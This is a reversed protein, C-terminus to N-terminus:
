RLRERLTVLRLQAIPDEALADIQAQVADRAESGYHRQIMAAAREGVSDRSALHVLNSLLRPDGRSGPDIELAREYRSLADSYWGRQVFLHGILLV